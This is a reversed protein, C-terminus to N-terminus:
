ERERRVREKDRYLARDAALLLADADMGAESVAV